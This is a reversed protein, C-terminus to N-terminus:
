DNESLGVEHRDAKELEMYMPKNKTENPKLLVKGVAAAVTGMNTTTSWPKEGSDYITVRKGEL